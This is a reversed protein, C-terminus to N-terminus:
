LEEDYEEPNYSYSRLANLVDQVMESMQQGIQENKIKEVLLQNKLELEALEVEARQSGLRLFHTVIQSSATGEELQRRAQEMALQILKREQAEEDIPPTTKRKTM